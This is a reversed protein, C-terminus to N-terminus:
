KSAGILLWLGETELNLNLGTAPQLRSKPAPPSPTAPMSIAIRPCFRAPAGAGLPAGVDMHRRAEVVVDRSGGVEADARDPDVPQTLARVERACALERVQGPEALFEVREDRLLM